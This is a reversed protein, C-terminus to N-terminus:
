GTLACARVTEQYFEPDYKCGFLINDKVSANMIWPVQSAYAIKGKVTVQGESKYLDGLISQLLSSKGSGVRGVICSLEGKHASYNIESLAVKYEPKRSWLFTGDKITVSEEGIDMARPLHEVADTQIEEATLFTRLRFIAVSAEIISSIVNPVVALPFSLLNFLTLAPFVIDTTLPQDNSYVFLAFTSCSVMFPACQWLFTTIASFLGIDKLTKLELDNRVHNLKEMFPIEWGYLKLSKVNTLIESTLKTRQDKNAMQKEQLRKQVKALQTNIPIMIVMVAVGAWMSNGLINYLSALCLIIQFPGSWAIQVYQTLDQLRQTDVSMLNVIDGTSKTARDENSLILAKRFISATLAAKIRMGSDFARQFYQHLAATQLVSTLFMAVAILIGKSLAVDGETTNYDNVFKILLRLLQPQVFALMDQTAKFVGGVMFDVGFAHFLALTISPNSKKDVEDQWYKEFEEAVHGTADSTPLEPLDDETLFKEYGKKMLPTMWSFTLRSFVDAKEIPNREIEDLLAEYATRSRPILWELVLVFVSNVLSLVYVISSVNGSHFEDFTSLESIKVAVCVPALLWYFLLVGNSILSRSIEIYHLFFAIILAPISIAPSWFAIDQYWKPSVVAASWALTISFLM